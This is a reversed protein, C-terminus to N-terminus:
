VSDPSTGGGAPSPLNCGFSEASSHNISGGLTFDEAEGAAGEGADHRCRLGTRLDGLVDGEAGRAPLRWASVVSAAM